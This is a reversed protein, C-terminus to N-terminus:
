IISFSTGNFYLYRSSSEPLTETETPPTIPIPLSPNSSDYINITISGVKRNVLNLYFGKSLTLYNTVFSFTTGAFTSPFIWNEGNYGSTLISAVGGSPIPYTYPAVAVGNVYLNLSNENDGAPLGYLISKDNLIFDTTSILSASTINQNGMNINGTMTGGALPLYDGLNGSSGNSNTSKTYNLITLVLVTILLIIVLLLFEKM